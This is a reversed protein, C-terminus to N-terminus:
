RTFYVTSSNCIRVDMTESSRLTHCNDLVYGIIPTAGIVAWIAVVAVIFGLMLKETKNLKKIQEKM